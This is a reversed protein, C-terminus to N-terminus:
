QLDLSAEVLSRTALLISNIRQIKAVEKTDNLEEAQERLRMMRNLTRSLSEDLAILEMELFYGTLGQNM